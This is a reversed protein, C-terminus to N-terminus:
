SNKGRDEGNQQQSFCRLVGSLKLIKTISNKLELIEIQNENIDKNSQQFKKVNGNTELMNTVTGQPMKLISFQKLISTLFCIIFHFYFHIFTFASVILFPLLM